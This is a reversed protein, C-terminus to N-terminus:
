YRKVEKATQPVLTSLTLYLSPQSDEGPEILEPNESLRKNQDKEAKKIRQKYYQYAKAIYAIAEITKELGIGDALISGILATAITFLQLTTKRTAEAVYGKAERDNNANHPSHWNRFLKTFFKTAIIQWWNLEKITGPIVAPMGRTSCGIECLAEVLYEPSFLASNNRTAIDIDPQGEIIHLKPQFLDHFVMETGVERVSTIEVYELELNAHQELTMTIEEESESDDVQSSSIAIKKGKKSRTPKPAPVTRIEGRADRLYSLPATRPPARAALSSQESKKRYSELRNAFLTDDRAATRTLLTAGGVDRGYLLLKAIQCARWHHPEWNANIRQDTMGANLLALTTSHLVQCVSAFNVTRTNEPLHPRILDYASNLETDELMSELFVVDPIDLVHIAFEARRPASSVWNSPTYELGAARILPAKGDPTRMTVPMRISSTPGTQTQQTHLYTLAGDDSILQELGDNIACEYEDDSFHEAESEDSRPRKGQNALAQGSPPTPDEAVNTDDADMGAEM